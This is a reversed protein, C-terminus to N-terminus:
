KVEKELQESLVTLVRALDKRKARVLRVNDVEGLSIRRRLSVIEERLENSKTALDKTPLKRIEAVKM